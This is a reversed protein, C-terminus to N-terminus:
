ELDLEGLFFSEYAGVAVGEQSYRRSGSLRSAAKGSPPATAHASPTCCGPSFTVMSWVKADIM